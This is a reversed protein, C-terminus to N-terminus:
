RPASAAAAFEAAGLERVLSAVDGYTPDEAYVLGLDRAALKRRGLSLLLRGRGYRAARLLPDGRKKSRLCETYVSIAAEELRQAELAQAQFLKTQLSVDDSNAVPAAVENVERWAGQAALLECLSLTLKPDPQATALKQLLGIAEDIRGVSQYAEALALAGLLSSWPVFASVLTTVQLEIAPIDGLYKTLLNDPLPTRAAVVKELHPIAEAPSGAQIELLGSLLDDSVVRNATDKAAAAKFLARAKALDGKLYVDVARAFDKEYGPAFLGAKPRAAVAVPRQAPGRSTPTKRAKTRSRGSTVVYGVGTGPIGTSITRRGSSHMSYRLGRM